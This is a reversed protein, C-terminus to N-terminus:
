AGSLKSDHSLCPLAEWTGKGVENNMANDDTLSYTVGNHVVTAAASHKCTNVEAILVHDAAIHELFLSGPSPSAKGKGRLVLSSDGAGHSFLYGGNASLFLRNGTADDYAAFDFVSVELSHNGPRSNADGSYCATATFHGNIGGAPAIISLSALGDVVTVASGLPWDNVSFQVTGTPTCGGTISVRATLTVRQGAILPADSVTLTTASVSKVENSPSEEAATTVRSGDKFFRLPLIMPVQNRYRRYSNGYFHILDREAIQIAVFIYATTALAFVLHAATMTPAAWFALLWGFYLPHRVYRYPGPTRFGLWSYATGRLYLYVQRLGFLDFHNILFTSVLVILWGMAFLGTLTLRVAANKVDWVVGGMPRWQWFLLLLLLSSFLVYTSREVPEPIIRTWARKFSQRAMLSHQIAFLGLLCANILFAEALPGEAGSDISKPVILNGLFGVAYLFTGFFVLYCVLGYAFATIRAFM